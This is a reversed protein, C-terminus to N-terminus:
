DAQTAREAMEAAEERHRVVIIPVNVAEVIQEPM